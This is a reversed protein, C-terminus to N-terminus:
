EYDRMKRVSFQKKEIGKKESHLRIKQMGKYDDHEQKQISM